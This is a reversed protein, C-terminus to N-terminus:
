SRPLRRSRAPCRAVGAHVIVALVLAGLTFSAAWVLTIIVNV